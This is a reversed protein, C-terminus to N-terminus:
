SFALCCLASIVTIRIEIGIRSCAFHLKIDMCRVASVRGAPDSGVPQSIVQIHIIVMVDGPLVHLEIRYM